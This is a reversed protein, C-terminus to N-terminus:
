VGIEFERQLTRDVLVIMVDAELGIGLQAVVRQVNNGAIGRGLDFLQGAALIAPCQKFAAV